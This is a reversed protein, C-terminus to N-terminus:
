DICIPTCSTSGGDDMKQRKRTQEKEIGALYSQLIKVQAQSSLDVVAGEECTRMYEQTFAELSKLHDNIGKAAFFRSCVDKFSAKLKESMYYECGTVDPSALPLVNVAKNNLITRNSRETTSGAALIRYISVPRTQGLRWLRCEAQYEVSPNFWSDLLIARNARHLSIGVSGSRIGVFGVRHQVNGEDNILELFKEKNALSMSSDYRLPEQDPFAKRVADMAAATGEHWEQFVIICSQPDQEFADRILQILKQLKCSHTDPSLMLDAKKMGASELTDDKALYTGHCVRCMQGWLSLMTGWTGSSAQQQRNALNERWYGSAEKMLIYFVRLQTPTLKCYVTYEQKPPLPPMDRKVDEDDWSKRLSFSALYQRYELPSARRWMEDSIPARLIRSVWIIDEPRNNLPTGTLGIQFTSHQTTLIELAQARDTGNRMEHIEDVIVTLWPRRFLNFADNSNEIDSLVLQYTTIVYSARKFAASDDYRNAGHYLYVNDDGLRKAWKEWM